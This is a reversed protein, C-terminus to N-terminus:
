KGTKGAKRRIVEGRYRVGKAKYPDPVRYSRIDAAVQGLLEKDVGSLTIVTQKEVEAQIGEPLAYTVPHSFGLTMVLNRGQVQARYGVGNVELIKRFGRFVGEAMNAVLTRTLGHLPQFERETGQLTVQVAQDEKQISVKPHFSKMLTGKPGKMTVTRGEVRVEVGAPIEVPKKGIRSM